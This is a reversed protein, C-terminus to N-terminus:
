RNLIKEVAEYFPFDVGTHKKLFALEPDPTGDAYRRFDPDHGKSVIQGLGHKIGISEITPWEVAVGDMTAWLHMDLHIVDDAPWKIRKACKSSIATQFLSARGPHNIKVCKRAALHYYITTSQGILDPRGYREWQKAVQDIYRYSYWDDNEMIVILDVASALASVGERMREVLDPKKVPAHDIICVQDAKRSQNRIYRQYQPVFLPRDGPDCVLVGIKM